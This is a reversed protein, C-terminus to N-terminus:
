PGIQAADKSVCLPAILEDGALKASRVARFGFAEAWGELGQDITM